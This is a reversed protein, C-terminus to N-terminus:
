QQQMDLLGEQLIGVLANDIVYDAFAQFKPQKLVQQAAAPGDAGGSGAGALEAAAPVVASAAPGTTPNPVGDEAASNGQMVVEADVQVANVGSPAERLEAFVPVPAQQLQEFAAAVERDAWVEAVIDELVAKAAALPATAATAAPLTPSHNDAATAARAGAAAAASTGM